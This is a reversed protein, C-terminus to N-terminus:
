VLNFLQASFTLKKINELLCRFEKDGICIRIISTQLRGVLLPYQAEQFNSILCKKVPIESQNGEDLISMQIKRIQRQGTEMGPVKALGFLVPLSCRYLRM